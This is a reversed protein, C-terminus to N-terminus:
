IEWPQSNHDLWYSGDPAQWYDPGATTPPTYAYNRMKLRPLANFTYAHLTRFTDTVEFQSSTVLLPVYGEDHVDFVERGALMEQLVDAEARTIFGTRYSFEVEFDTAYHRRETDHAAYGPMLVSEATERQVNLKQAFEGLCRLTEPVGFGNLYQLNRKGAYHDRDLYYTRAPSLYTPNSGEWDSTADVVRVSFKYANPQADLGFLTPKIPILLTEGPQVVAKDAVDLEFTRVWVGTDAHRWQLELVVTAATEQWNYWALFEPTDDDVRKGDPMWSLICNTADRAALWDGETFLLQSIGGNLVEQMEWYSWVGYTVPTGSSEAWRVYYRRLNDALVPEDTGANPVSPKSLANECERSLVGSVDFYHFGAADPVSELAAVREFTGSKHASEFFVEFHVRYNDPTTDATVTNTNVVTFGASNAGTISWGSAAEVAQITLTVNGAAIVATVTFFPSVRFHQAVVERVKNWYSTNTYGVSSSSPIDTILTPTTTATFVLNTIGGNPETYSVSLTQGNTFRATQAATTVSRVGQAGYPLGGGDVSKLKFVLPNRAFARLPPSSVYNLAM